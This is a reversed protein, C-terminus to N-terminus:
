LRQRAEYAKLHTYAISLPSLDLQERDAEAARGILDGIIHDAEIRSQSEIDRLMSATMTSDAAFLVKRAREIFQPRMPYGNEQAIECCQSFLAGMVREGGPASLIAGVAARFLCTSGALTALFVWKEWMDQAIHDSLFVDFGANSLLDNIPKLVDSKGQLAGFTISHTDNLHVIERDANLTAAIVCTGGLVNAPSFRNQLIELHRMGNLLPLIRTSPGVAPAFSEIASDLDYAKCSLLILDFTERLEDSSITRVDKLRIDGKISKIILGSQRLKAARQRRVLFTVDRGAHAMRGGFYGGVAGAGVVLIKMDAEQQSV